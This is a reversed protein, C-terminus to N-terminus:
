VGQKGVIKAVDNQSVKISILMAESEETIQVDVDDPHDVLNKILYAIFEKM